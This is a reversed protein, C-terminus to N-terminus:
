QRRRRTWYILPLLLTWMAPDAPSSAAVGCAGCGGSKPSSHPRHVLDIGGHVVHIVPSGQGWIRLRDGAVFRRYYIEPGPPAMGRDEPYTVPVIMGPQLPGRQVQEVRVDMRGGLDGVVVGAFAIPARSRILEYAQPSLTADARGASACLAAVVVAIALLRRGM